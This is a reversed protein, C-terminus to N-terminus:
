HASSSTSWAATDNTIIQSLEGFATLAVVLAGVLWVVIMVISWNFYVKEETGRTNEISEIGSSAMLSIQNPETANMEVSANLPKSSGGHLGVTHSTALGHMAERNDGEFGILQSRIPPICLVILVPLWMLYNLRATLYSRLMRQLLLVLVVMVAAYVSTLILWILLDIM